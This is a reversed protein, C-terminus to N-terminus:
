KSISEKLVKRFLVSNKFSDHNEEGIQKGRLSYYEIIDFDNLLSFLKAELDNEASIIYACDNDKLYKMSAVDMPGYALICTGSVLSDAIKTSLSFRVKDINKQLFSEVHILIDSAEIVDKVQEGPIFGHYKISTINNIKEQVNKNLKSYINISYKTCEEKNIKDLTIGIEILNDIRGLSTNGIYSIVPNKKTAKNKIKNKTRTNFNFNSGTPITFIDVGSSRNFEKEYAKTFFDNITIISRCKNAFEKIKYKLLISQLKEFLTKEKLSKFYYDDGFSSVIPINYKRSIKLSINYLFNSDGTDSFILDPKGDKIWNDLDKTNLWMTKWLADRLLLKLARNKNSNIYKRIKESEFNLDNNKPEVINSTKGKKFFKYILDSETLRYYSDCRKIDPYTPYVYFQMLEYKKFESFLSVMRKGGNNSLTLPNYSIILVKM